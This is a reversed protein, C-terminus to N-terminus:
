QRPKIIEVVRDGKELSVQIATIARAVQGTGYGLITEIHYNGAEFGSFDIVESFDRLELPFMASPDGKLLIRVKRIGDRDIIAVSCKPLFHINGVNGCKATIIYRGPKEGAVSMKMVRAQPQSEVDANRVCILPSRKGASQGNAYSARLNLSAYYNAHIVESKPVKAVIRINQRAGSRLKFKTPRITLWQPCALDEGQLAGLAVGKLMEPVELSADVNVIGSESANIIQIVTSRTAGKMGDIAVQQPQVEIAADTAADTVTPDGKFEIVKELPKARRGDIYIRSFLKYQGSPLRKEIDTELQVEVGPIIKTKRFDAETIRRWHKGVSKKIMMTGGISSFTGGKNAITMSVLTSAPLKSSEPLFKMGADTLNIDQRMARGRIEVLIPVLFRIVIGVGEPELKPHLTATLGALYFGKANPPVRLKVKIKVREYPGAIINPDSLSIWSLCSNAQNTDAAIEPPIIQWVANKGQTLSHLDFQILHTEDSRNLIDLYTEVRMGAYPNIEIIMPQVHVNRQSLVPETLVFLLIIFIWFLLQSRNNIKRTM